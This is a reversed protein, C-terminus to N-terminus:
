DPQNVAYLLAQLMKVNNFPPHMHNFRIVGMSGLPDIDEVKVVKGGAAWSPAEKPPVYDTNKVYVVKNGPVWQEKVFKFPESGTTDTINQFPDTRAIREPM